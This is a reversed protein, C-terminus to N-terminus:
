DECSGKLCMCKRSCEIASCLGHVILETSREARSDGSSDRLCGSSQTLLRQVGVDKKIAVKTVQLDQKGGVSVRLSCGAM